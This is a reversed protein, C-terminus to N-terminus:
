RPCHPSRDRRSPTQANVAARVPGKSSARVLGSSCSRQFLIVYSNSSECISAWPKAANRLWLKAHRGDNEVLKGGSGSTRILPSPPLPITSCSHGTNSRLPYQFTRANRSPTRFSAIPSSVGRAPRPFPSVRFPLGPYMARIHQHASPSVFDSIVILRVLRKAM